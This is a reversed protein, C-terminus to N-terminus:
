DTERKAKRMMLDRVGKRPDKGEHVAAYVENIIPTDVGNADALEKASAATAVGEAVVMGMSEIIDDIREGRGLREGVARNRSHGSCCTVIMDGIGSLGSFTEQRGGLAIGLRGMEAIGRTMLAAKPNAGLKMGDIVGAAIAFVNKLAGGLEIGVVDDSTYVRFSENMFADRVTEAIEASSSGVVVATPAKKVVEEAHSPGSLVSYNLDNGLIEACLESMRKLSSTEIGKAVNVLTYRRPDHFQAFTALVSRAYQSPSALVVLEAGDLAEEMDGTLELEPPLEVGPLFRTNRRTGRMESIYDPFPGWQRVRHGNGVLTVALATGWAGDSLVVANM